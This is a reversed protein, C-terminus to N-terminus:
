DFTEEPHHSTFCHRPPPTHPPCDFGTCGILSARPPTILSDGFCRVLLPFITLSPPPPAGRASEEAPPWRCSPGRVHGPAGQFPVRICWWRPRVWRRKACIEVWYSLARASLPLKLWSACRIALRRSSFASIIRCGANRSCILLSPLSHRTRTELVELVSFLCVLSQILSFSM